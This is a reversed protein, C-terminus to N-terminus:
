TILSNKMLAPGNRLIEHRTEFGAGACLIGTPM